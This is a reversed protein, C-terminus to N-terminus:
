REREEKKECIYAGSGSDWQGVTQLAVVRQQAEAPVALVGALQPQVAGVDGQQLRATAPTTAPAPNTLRLKTEREAATTSSVPIYSAPISGRQLLQKDTQRDTATIVTSM